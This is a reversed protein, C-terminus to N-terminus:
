NMQDQKQSNALLVGLKRKCTDKNFPTRGHAFLRNDIIVAWGKKLTMQIMNENHLKKLIEIEEKSFETDDGWSSHYPRERPPLSDYPPWTNWIQSM